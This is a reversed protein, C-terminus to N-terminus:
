MRRRLHPPSQLQRALASLVPRPILRASSTLFRGPAVYSSTFSSSVPCVPRVPPAARHDAGNRKAAPKDQDMPHPWAPPSRQNSQPSGRARPDAARSSASAEQAEVDGRAVAQQPEEEPQAGDDETSSLLEPQSTQSPKQKDLHKHWVQDLRRELEQSEQKRKQSPPTSPPSPDVILQKRPSAAVAGAQKFATASAQKPVPAPAPPRPRPLM